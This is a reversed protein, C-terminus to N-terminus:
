NRLDLLTEGIEDRLKPEVNAIIAFNKWQNVIDNIEDIIATTKRNRISKCFLGLDGKTIYKRKGNISM